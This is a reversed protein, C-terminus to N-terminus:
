KDIELLWEEGNAKKILVEIYEDQIYYRYDFVDSIENDNIKLLIDGAEIELEDAISGELVERIVHENRKNINNM